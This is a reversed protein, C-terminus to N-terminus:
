KPTVFISEKWKKHTQQSHMIKWHVNEPIQYDNEHPWAKALFQIIMDLRVEKHFKLTM